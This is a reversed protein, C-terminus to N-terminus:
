DQLWFRLMAMAMERTLRGALYSGFFERWTVVLTADMPGCHLVM